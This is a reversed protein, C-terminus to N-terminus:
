YDNAKGKELFNSGTPNNQLLLLLHFISDHTNSIGTQKLPM